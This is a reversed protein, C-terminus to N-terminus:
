RLSLVLMQLILLNRLGVGLSEWESPRLLPEMCIFEESHANKVFSEVLWVKPPGWIVTQCVSALHDVWGVAALNPVIFLLDITGRKNTVQKNKPQIKSTIWLNKGSSMPSTLVPKRFHCFTGSIGFHLFSRSWPCIPSASLCPFIEPVEWSLLRPIM